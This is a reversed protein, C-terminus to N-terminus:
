WGSLHGRKIAGHIKKSLGPYQSKEMEALWKKTTERATVGDVPCKSKVVPLGSRKVDSRIIKEPAYILPRIMTIDKRSLYTVPQFCGLRGEHFLNMVFTEVADDYHHGLALKNAGHLNCLDHLMGRRMRACLSCPNSEARQNFIIDGLDSRRIVHEVGHSACLETVPAYDTWVGGFCPDVTIAILKFSVGFFERLRLLGALLAVSDKGGSLGVALVDGDGLM